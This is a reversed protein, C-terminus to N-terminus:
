LSISSPQFEGNGYFQHRKIVNNAWSRHTAIECMSGNMKFVAEAKEHLIARATALDDHNIQFCSEIIHLQEPHIATKGILGCSIDHQTEKMLLENKNLHEFVPATLEFGYPKFITILQYIIFGLPTEYLTKDTPRRLGLHHLLDNGGIRLALINEQYNADLLKDRLICMKSQEFVDKSELTLMNKFATNKILSFYDNFNHLDVKPFVFGSINDIHPLSLLKELIVPNRARIFRLKDSKELAPLLEALRYLALDIQQEHISDETCFVMSRLPPYKLGNAIDAMNERIAPIYLTAGLQLADTM